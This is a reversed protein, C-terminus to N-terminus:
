KLFEVELELDFGTNDKVTKQVYRCLDLIDKSTANNKNIVFGAHKDSVAAGGLSFGKLGCEDILKSAYSGVPRKFTSGCSPYDLPQKEIRRNLLENMKAFIQSYEGDQLLFTASLVIWNKNDHFVSHRYALELETVDKEKYDGNEDLYTVKSLVNCIESGYAGANMYVAGGVSGPIGYAFELGSLCHTLATKCVESLSLGAGATIRNDEVCVKNLAKKTILVVGDYGEDLAIVNSGNGLVYYPISNGIITKYTNVFSAENQPILVTGLGGTRFGTYRSLPEQELITLDSLSDFQKIYQEM